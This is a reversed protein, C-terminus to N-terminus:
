KSKDRISHPAVTEGRLRYHRSTTSASTHGLLKQAEELGMDSATKKRLDKEQYKEKLGTKKLARDMFRRWLSDFGNAQGKDNVYCDGNRTFFIWPVNEKPRSILAADVAERLEDTWAIVIRVGTKSMEGLLGEPLIDDETLRLLDGRRLGCLLKLVVYARLMPSAVKLSEAIEWDEIYRDRRKISFKRVQGKVPNRDIFGYEVAKSLAHSLVEFDRNASSKGHKEAVMHIYRYAHKPRISDIAMEGFVPRLRRISILNSQQSKFAKGPVVEVAYKDILQGFTKADMEVQCRGAFTVYAEQLTKGLQYESKGDWLHRTSEPVRFYYAGHKFRWRAPLQRNEPNRRRPSM